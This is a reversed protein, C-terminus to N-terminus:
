AAHHRKELNAKAMANLERVFAIALSLRHAARCTNPPIAHPDDWQALACAIDIDASKLVLCPAKDGSLFSFLRATGPHMVAIIDTPRQFRSWAQQARELSLGDAFDAQTLALHRLLTEKLPQSQQLKCSFSEGTSLRQAVWSVPPGPVRKKGRQGAPSEGYAVVINDLDSLLALPVNKITRNGRTRLRRGNPDGPHALQREVMVDFARLLQDCGVTESELMQLAAVTAELTSLSTLTPERRLRYRSPEVPALQYRPLSQLAPIERLLTKAHHWTGDLLVLQQPREEPTLDTLLRASPGPYLLGAGPKLQLRAKLNPTNDVLLQSNRLAKNVIRATNFPHFRERRHQVILVDTRNDIRPISDCFCATV